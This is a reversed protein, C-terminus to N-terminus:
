FGGSSMRRVTKECAKILRQKEIKTAYGFLGDVFFYIFVTSGRNLPSIRLSAQGNTYFTRQKTLPWLIAIRFFFRPHFM